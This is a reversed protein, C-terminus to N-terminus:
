EARGGRDARATAAVAIQGALREAARELAAREASLNAYDSALVNYAEYVRATGAIPPADAPADFANMRWDAYVTLGRRTVDGRKDIALTQTRQRLTVQMRYDPARADDFARRLAARLVQGEREPIPAVQVALRGGSGGGDGGRAGYLPQFGCGALALALGLLAARHWWM